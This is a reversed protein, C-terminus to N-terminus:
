FWLELVAAFGLSLLIIALSIAAVVDWYIPRPRM